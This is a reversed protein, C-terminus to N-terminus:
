RDKINEGMAIKIALHSFSSLTSCRVKFILRKQKKPANIWLGTFCFVGHPIELLSHLFTHHYTKGAFINGARPPGRFPRANFRSFASPEPLRLDAQVPLQVPSSICMCAVVTVAFPEGLFDSKEWNWKLVVSTGLSNFHGFYMWIRSKTFGASFRRFVCSLDLWEVMSFEIDSLTIYIYNYM